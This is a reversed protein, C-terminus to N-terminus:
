ELSFRQKDINYNFAIEEASLARSYVRISYMSGGFANRYGSYYRKGVVFNDSSTITNNTSRSGDSLAVGDQWVDNTSYKASISSLSASSFQKRKKYIGDLVAYYDGSNYYAHLSLTGKQLWYSATESNFTTVIEITAIDPWNAGDVLFYANSFQFHDTDWTGSGTLTMHYGNGSLDKWTTASNSHQGAGANEIGDYMAILGTQVYSSAPLITPQTVFDARSNGVMAKYRNSGIYISM